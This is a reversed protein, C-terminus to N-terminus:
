QVAGMRKVQGIAVTKWLINRIIDTKRGKALPQKRCMWWFFGETKGQPFASKRYKLPKVKEPLQSIISLIYM